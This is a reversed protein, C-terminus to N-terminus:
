DLANHMQPNKAFITSLITMQHPIILPGDSKNEIPSHPSNPPNRFTRSHDIDCIDATDCIESPWKTAYALHTGTVSDLVLPTDKSHKSYMVARRNHSTGRICWREAPNQTLNATFGIMNLDHDVSHFCFLTDTITRHEESMSDDSVTKSNTHLWDYGFTVITHM